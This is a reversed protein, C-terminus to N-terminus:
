LRTLPLFSTVKKTVGCIGIYHYKKIQENNWLKNKTEKNNNNKESIKCQKTKKM